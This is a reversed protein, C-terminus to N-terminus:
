DKALVPCIEREPDIKEKAQSSLSGHDGGPIRLSLCGLTEEVSSAHLTTLLSSILHVSKPVVAKRLEPAKTLDCSLGLKRM